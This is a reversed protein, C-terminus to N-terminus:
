RHGYVLFDRESERFLEWKIKDLKYHKRSSKGRTLKNKCYKIYSFLKHIYVPATPSVSFYNPGQYGPLPLRQYIKGKSCQCKIYCYFRYLTQNYTKTM